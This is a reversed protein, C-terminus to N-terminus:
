AELQLKPEKKKKPQRGPRLWPRLPSRGYLAQMCPPMARGQGKTLGLIFCQLMKQEVGLSFSISPTKCFSATWSPKWTGGGCWKCTPISQHKVNSWFAHAPLRWLRLFIFIEIFVAFLCSCWGLFILRCGLQIVCGENVHNQKDVRPVMYHAPWLQRIGRSKILCALQQAMVHTSFTHQTTKTTHKIHKKTRAGPKWKSYAQEIKYRIESKLWLIAHVNRSAPRWKIIWIRPKCSSDVFTKKKPTRHNGSEEPM